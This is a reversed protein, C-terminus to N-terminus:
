ISAAFYYISFVLLLMSPIISEFECIINFLLSIIHSLKSM